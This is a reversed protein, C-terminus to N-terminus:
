SNASLFVTYKLVIAESLSGSTLNRVHLTANGASTVIGGVGYAGLTGGSVHTVLLHAEAGIKSNVFPFTVTTNAALLAANMTIQGCIKNLTVSTAKSTGQTQVGGFGTRYGIGSASLLGGKFVFVLDDTGADSSCGIAITADVTADLATISADEVTVAIFAAPAHGSPVTGTGTWANFSIIGLSDGTQVIVPATLTGRGAALTLSTQNGGAGATVGKLFVGTEATDLNIIISTPDTTTGLLLDNVNGQITHSSAGGLSDTIILNNVFVRRDVADILLSSDDGFISGKVDGTHFGNSNGTLTGILTSGATGTIVGNINGTVNGTVNGLVNGTLNGTVNSVVPGVITGSIGDVLLTSDDAVISGKFSTAGITGQYNALDVVASISAAVDNYTFAIGTHAGNSFLLAAADQADENTYGTIQVGGLTSGNGIYLRQDDTVYLLEGQALPQTMATRQSNTGRRIQLPM